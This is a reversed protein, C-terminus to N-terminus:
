LDIYEMNSLLLAFSNIFIPYSSFLLTVLNMIPVTNSEIIIPTIHKIPVFYM